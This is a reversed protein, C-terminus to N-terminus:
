IRNVLVLSFVKLVVGTITIDRWNGYGRLDGRKPVSVIIGTEWESPKKRRTSWIEQVLKILAQSPM